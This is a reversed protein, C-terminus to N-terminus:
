RRKEAVTLECTKMGRGCTKFTKGAVEFEARRTSIAEVSRFGVGMGVGPFAEVVKLGGFVIPKQADLGAQPSGRSRPTSPRASSGPRPRIVWDLRSEVDRTTRDHDDASFAPTAALCLSPLRVSYSECLALLLLSFAHGSRALRSFPFYASDM